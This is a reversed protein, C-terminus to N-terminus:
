LADQLTDCVLKLAVYEVSKVHCMSVVADPMGERERQVMTLVAGEEQVDLPKCSVERYLAELKDCLQDFDDFVGQSEQPIYDLGFEQFMEEGGTLCYANERAAEASKSKAVINHFLITERPYEVINLLERSGIFDGILVKDSLADKLKDVQKAGHKREMEQM